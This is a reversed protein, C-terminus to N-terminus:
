PQKDRKRMELYGFVWIGLTGCACGESLQKMSDLLLDASPNISPRITSVKCRYAILAILAILQLATATHFLIRTKM